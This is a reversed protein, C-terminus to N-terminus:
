CNFKLIQCKPPFISLKITLIKSACVCYNKRLEAKHIVFRFYIYEMNLTKFRTHAAELSGFPPCSTESGNRFTECLFQFILRM